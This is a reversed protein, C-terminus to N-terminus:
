GGVSIDPLNFTLNAPVAGSVEPRYALVFTPHVLPIVPADTFVQRQIEYYLDKRKKEDLESRAKEILADLGKYGGANPFPASASHLLPTFYQDPELRLHPQLSIDFNGGRRITTLNSWEVVKIDLDVGIKALQEKVVAAMEPATNTTYTHLVAKFGDGRGAQQLLEKAKQLDQKYPMEDLRGFTWTNLLTDTAKAAGKFVGQVIDDKNLGWWIAQRVKPDDFPKRKLNFQLYWTRPSPIVEAKLKSNKALRMGVNGDETYGIDVDGKELAAEFTAEEKIVLFTVKKVKPKAGFYDPNASLVIRDGPVWQEFVYPGTGVVNANYQKGFKEVAERKMILGPRYALVAAPFSPEAAKMKIIVTHDDPTEIAAVNAFDSAFPSGNKKDMVWEFSDKVDRSTLDGFGKHWKVGKRLRFTYTKGDPSVDWTEALDTVIETTGPKVKLLGSYVNFAIATEASGNLLGPIMNSIDISVRAKLEDRGAPAATGGSGGGAQPAPAGAKGGCGALLLSFLLLGVIWIRMLRGNRM